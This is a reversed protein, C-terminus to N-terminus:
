NIMGILKLAEISITTTCYALYTIQVINLFHRNLRLPPRAPIDKLKLGIRADLLDSIRLLIQSVGISTVNEARGKSCNASGQDPYTQLVFAASPRNTGLSHASVLVRGNEDEVGLGIKNAYMLGLM